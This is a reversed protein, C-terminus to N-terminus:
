DTRDGSFQALLQDACADAAEKLKEKLLAGSNAKLEDLTPSTAADEGKFSCFGQWVIKSEEPRILRARVAYLIRYRSTDPLHYGAAWNTTQFDILMTGAFKTRLETLDDSALPENLSRFNRLELGTGLAAIFRDKVRVSPDELAYEKTLRKGEAEISAGVIAGGIIGFLSAVAIQGATTITFTPAPYHVAQIEPQDKLRAIEEKEMKILSPACGVMLLLIAVFALARDFRGSIAAGQRDKPNM